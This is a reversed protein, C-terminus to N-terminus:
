AFTAIAMQAGNIDVRFALPVQLGSALIFFLAVGVTASLIPLLREGHSINSKAFFMRTLFVFASVIGIVMFLFLVIGPLSDFYHSLVTLVTREMVPPTGTIQDSIAYVAKSTDYLRFQLMSEQVQTFIETLPVFVPPSTGPEVWWDWKEIPLILNLYQM